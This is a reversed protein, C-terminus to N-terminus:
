VDMQFLTGHEHQKGEIKLLTKGDYKQGFGQGLRGIGKEMYHQPCMLAWPGEVTKGDVFFEHQRVDAEQPNKKDIISCYDCTMQPGYWKAPPPVRVFESCIPCLKFTDVEANDPFEVGRGCCDCTVTM